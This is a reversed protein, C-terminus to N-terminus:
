KRRVNAEPYDASDAFLLVGEWGRLHYNFFDLLYNTMMMDIQDGDISGVIGVSELLPSLRKIDTFGFHETEDVEVEIARDSNEWLTELRNHNLESLEVPSKMIGLPARLGAQLAEDSTPVVWPDLGFAAGCRPERYCFEYSTGGGTSQGFVGIQQFNFANHLLHSSDANFTELEALLTSLDASWEGVLRQADPIENPTEWRIVRERDYTVAEGNPYVTFAAAYVHDTAVVIYGHSALQEVQQTNQVRVGSLGHSFFLIPYPADGAVRPELYSHTEILRTHNLIFSPFDLTAAIAAGGIGLDPVYPARPEGNLEAPYWIQMNLRRVDNPDDSYIEPRANDVVLYTATGVAYDGTLPKLQIIPFLYGLTLAVICFLVGGITGAWGVWSAVNVKTVTLLLWVVAVFYAPILQWRAGELTIHLMAPLLVVAISALTGRAYRQHPAFLIILTALVFLTEFPRM